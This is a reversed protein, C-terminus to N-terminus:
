REKKRKADILCEGKVLLCRLLFKYGLKVKSMSSEDCDNNMKGLCTRINRIGVVFIGCRM